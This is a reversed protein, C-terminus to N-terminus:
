LHEQEWNRGPGEHHTKMPPQIFDVWTQLAASTHCLSAVEDVGLKWSKEEQEKSGTTCMHGPLSGLIFDTQFSLQLGGLFISQLYM